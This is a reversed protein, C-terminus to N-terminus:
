RAFMVVKFARPGSVIMLVALVKDNNYLRTFAFKAGFTGMTFHAIAVGLNGTVVVTM